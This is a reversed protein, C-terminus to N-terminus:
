SVKNLLKKLPEPTATWLRIVFTVLSVMPRWVEIQVVAPLSVLTTKLPPFCIKTM